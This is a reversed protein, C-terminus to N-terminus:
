HNTDRGVDFHELEPGETEVLLQSQLSDQSLGTRYMDKTNKNVDKSM